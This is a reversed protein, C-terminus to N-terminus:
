AACILETLHERAKRYAVTRGPTGRSLARDIEEQEKAPLQEIKGLLWEEGAESISREIACALSTQDPIADALSSDSDSHPSPRDLSLVFLADVAAANIPENLDAEGNRIRRARAGPIRILGLTNELHRSVSQRIWWMSYTSFRYGRAPDHLEAGRILGEIAAMQIDELCVQQNSDVLRRYRNAFKIALGLNEQVLANRAKLGRHRVAPPAADPGDPHRQWAAIDRGLELQRQASHNKFRKAAGYLLCHEPM